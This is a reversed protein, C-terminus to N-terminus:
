REMRCMEAYFTRALSDKLPLLALFHTWSLEQILSVLIQEDPFLEAFRAMRTLSSYSFGRGFERELQQALSILIEQGYEARGGSLNESLLRKGIKWYTLALASNVTRAIQQRAEEILSRIDALLTEQYSTLSNM